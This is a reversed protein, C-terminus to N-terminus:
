KAGDMHRHQSHRYSLINDAAMQNDNGPGSMRRGCLYGQSYSIPDRMPSLSQVLSSLECCSWSPMGSTPRPDVSTNASMRDASKATRRDLASRSITSWCKASRRCTVTPGSQLWSARNVTRQRGPSAPPLRGIFLLDPVSTPAPIAQARSAVGNLCRLDTRYIKRNQRRSKQM